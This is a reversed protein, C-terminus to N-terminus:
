KTCIRRLIGCLYLTCWMMVPVSEMVPEFMLQLFVLSFVTVILIQTKKEILNLKCIMRIDKVVIITFIVLLIFPLLGSLDIVNLYVNHLNGVKERAHAGGWM